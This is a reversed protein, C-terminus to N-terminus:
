GLPLPLQQVAVQDALDNLAAIGHELIARKEIASPTEFTRILARLADYVSQLAETHEQYLKTL